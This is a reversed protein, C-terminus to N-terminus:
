TQELNNGCNPCFKYNKNETGCNTCYKVKPNETNIKKKIHIFNTMVQIEERRGQIKIIPDKEITYEWPDEIWRTFIKTKQDIEDRNKGTIYVLLSEIKKQELIEMLNEELIKMTRFVESPLPKKEPEVLFSLTWLGSDESTEHLLIIYNVGSDTTIRFVNHELFTKDVTYPM